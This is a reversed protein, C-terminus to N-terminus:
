DIRGFRSTFPWYVVVARGILDRRPFSGWFRGDLSSRSNDGLVFLHEAPVTYTSRATPFNPAIPIVPIVYGNYDNTCSYIREFAPRSDLIQGNVVVYPPKIQITDNELGILRKIYFKGRSAGLEAINSTDFVIVEGRRPKRFHYSIKDVFIHDGRSRYGNTEYMKGQFIMGAIQEFVSPRVLNKYERPPKSEPPPYIGYLTPQMSGTPIKFPQIFFTRVAMAVIVAVLLVEINERVAPYKQAPQAGHIRQELEDARSAAQRADGAHLAQELERLKATIDPTQGSAFLDRNIRLWKHAGQFAGQAHKLAQRDKWNIM